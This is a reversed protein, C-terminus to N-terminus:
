TNQRTWKKKLSSLGGIHGTRQMRRGSGANEERAYMSVDKLYIDYEEEDNGDLERVFYLLGEKKLGVELNKSKNPRESARRKAVSRNKDSHM